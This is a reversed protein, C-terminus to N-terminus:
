IGAVPVRSVQEETLYWTFTRPQMAMGPVFHGHRYDYARYRWVGLLVDVAASPFAVMLAPRHQAITTQSGKLIDFEAGQAHLKILRPALEFSDLTNCEVPYEKVSLRAEDFLLMRGPDRLWETASKYDTASMGDCDWRGYKPVFFTLVGSRSGLACRHVTITPDLRHRAELQAASRPEPEFAVIRSAPALRRFAKISQGRNAGIDVILGSGIALHSIGLHPLGYFEPKMFYSAALDKAAFRVAALGPIRAYLFRALAKANM